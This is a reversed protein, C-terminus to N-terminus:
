QLLIAIDPLSSWPVDNGTGTAKVLGCPMGIRGLGERFPM